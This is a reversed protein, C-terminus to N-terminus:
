NVKSADWILEAVQTINGRGHRIPSALIRVLSQGGEDGFQSRHNHTVMVKENTELVKILPCECECSECPSSRGHSVEYCYQGIARQELLVNRHSLPTCYQTIHFERDIVMFECDLQDILPQLYEKLDEVETRAEEWAGVTEQTANRWMTALGQKARYSGALISTAVGVFPLIVIYALGLIPGLLAPMPMGAGGREGSSGMILSKDAKM